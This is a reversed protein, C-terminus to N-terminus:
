VLWCNYEIKWVATKGSFRRLGLCAVCQVVAVKTVVATILEAKLITSLTTQM